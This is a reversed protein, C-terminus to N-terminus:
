DKKKKRKKEKKRKSTFPPSANHQMKLSSVKRPFPSNPSTCIPNTASKVRSYMAGQSLNAISSRGSVVKTLCGDVASQIKGAIETGMRGPDGDMPSVSLRSLRM